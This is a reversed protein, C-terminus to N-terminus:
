RGIKESGLREVFKGFPFRLRLKIERLGGFSAVLECFFEVRLQVAAGGFKEVVGGVGGGYDGGGGAGAETEGGGAEGVGAAGGVKEVGGGVGGRYDSGGVAGDETEGGGAARVGFGEVTKETRGAIKIAQFSEVDTDVRGHHASKLVGIVSEGFFDAVRRVALILAM